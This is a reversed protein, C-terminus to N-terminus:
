ACLGMKHLRYWQEWSSDALSQGGQILLVERQVLNADADFQYTLYLRCLPSDLAGGAREVRRQAMPNLASVAQLPESQM